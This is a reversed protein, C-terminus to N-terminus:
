SGFSRDVPLDRDTRHTNRIPTPHINPPPFTLPKRGLLKRLSTTEWFTKTKWVNQKEFTRSTLRKTESVNQEQFTKSSLRKAAWVKEQTEFKKKNRLMKKNRLNKKTERLINKRGESERTVFKMPCTNGLLWLLLRYTNGPSASPALSHWAVKTLFCQKADGIGAVAAKDITKTTNSCEEVYGVSWPTPRRLGTSATMLHQALATDYIM